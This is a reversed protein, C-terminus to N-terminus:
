FLEPYFMGNLMNSVQGQVVNESHYRADVRPKDLVVCVICITNMNYSLVKVCGNCSVKEVCHMTM